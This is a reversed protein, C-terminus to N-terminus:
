RKVPHLPTIHGDAPYIDGKIVLVFMVKLNDARRGPALYVEFFVTYNIPPLNNSM